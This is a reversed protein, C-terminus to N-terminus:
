PGWQFFTSASEHTMMSQLTLIFVYLGQIITYCETTGSGQHHMKVNFVQKCYPFVGCTTMYNGQPNVNNNICFCQCTNITHHINCYKTLRLHKTFDHLNMSTLYFCVSVSNSDGHM